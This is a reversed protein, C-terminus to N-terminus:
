GVDGRPWKRVSVSGDLASSRHQDDMPVAPDGRDSELRSARVQGSVPEVYRTVDGEAQVSTVFDSQSTMRVDVEEYAATVFNYLEITQRINPTTARSEISFCYSSPSDSLLTGIFEIWVPPESSNLTLGPKFQLYSDDSNEIDALGGGAQIGRLVNFSNAVVTEAVEVTGLYIGRGHTVAMLTDDNKWKLQEVPAAAPGVANSTSWTQGNDDSYFMGIDTGVFLLGPQTRHLAFASIPANPISTMGTGSIDAWTNGGDTTEWLNDDEWGMLAVYVHNHNNRDIVVTSIWRDPLGVGNEDVQTWTPTANTGNTSVYLQGNNHAAWIINSNGEAVAMTSLNYPSNPDFHSTDASKDSHQGPGPPEITAKISTWSPSGAKVNNSRWLRRCGVLMRNPQNPDLMFFPIFNCDLGGADGIPNAGNWIYNSSQGGDTSRHIYARQVEGYYFNPDTQDAAGYGGDGGFIHDWNQKDGNFFLTGNDQTGGIIGGTTPNVGAGYFQTIGLNNNLDFANSGLATTPVIFEAM